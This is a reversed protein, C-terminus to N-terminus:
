KQTVAYECSLELVRVAEQRSWGNAEMLFRVEETTYCGEAPIIKAPQTPGGSRSAAIVIIAIIVLLAIKLSTKM